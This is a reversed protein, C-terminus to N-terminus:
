AGPRPHSSKMLFLQIYRPDLDAAAVRGYESQVERLLDELTTGAMRNIAPRDLGSSRALWDRLRGPIEERVPRGTGPEAENEALLGGLITRLQPLSLPEVPRGALGLWDRAWATLLLNKYTLFGRKGAAALPLDLAALLRDCGQVQTLGAETAQIDTLQEFERYLVGTRYNDFFRPRKLLLGGLLGFWEEGWFALGLERSAFWSAALWAEAHRKLRMAEGYGLRFLSELPYKRLLEALRQAAPIDPSAAEAPADLRELGISLYGATKRVVAKLDDRAHVGRRDAVILRNGLAAFESQLELLWHHDTVGQLARSFAGGDAALRVPTLALASAGVETADDSRPPPLRDWLGAPALPQYIGVAEEFPLFGKEALRICRLRYEEEETEAPLIGTSELVLQHFRHYDIDALQNLLDRLLDAHRDAHLEDAASTPPPTLVRFYLTDDITFFGDGFESPDQDHERIRIELSNYLYFHLLDTKSRVLWAAARGPAAAMLREFWRSVASLDIRDYHWVEQDLFYELQQENALALLPLSDEPGIEHLLLHLDQAPFSHVLAAPESHDLVRALAKEPALDLIEERAQKLSLRLARIKATPSRDETM